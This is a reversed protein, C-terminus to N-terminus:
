WARPLGKKFFSEGVSARSAVLFRVRRAGPHGLRRYHAEEDGGFAAAWGRVRPGPGRTMSRPRRGGHASFAFRRTLLVGGGATTRRKMDASLLPRAESVPAWGWSDYEKPMPRRTRLFCVAAHPARWRRRYHAEEGGDFGVAWDRVRPGPGV